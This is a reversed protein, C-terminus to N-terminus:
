LDLLLLFSALLTNLKVTGVTCNFDSFYSIDRSGIDSFDYDNLFNTLKNYTDVELFNEVLDAHPQPLKPSLPSVGFAHDKPHEAPLSPCINASLSSAINDLKTIYYSHLRLKM